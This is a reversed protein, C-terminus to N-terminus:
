VEFPATGCNPCDYTGTLTRNHRVQDLITGCRPCMIVDCENQDVGASKSQLTEVPLKTVVGRKEM